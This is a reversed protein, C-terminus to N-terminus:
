VFGYKEKFVSSETETIDAFVNIANYPCLTLM